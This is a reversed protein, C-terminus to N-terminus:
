AQEWRCPLTGEGDEEIGGVAGLLTGLGRLLM